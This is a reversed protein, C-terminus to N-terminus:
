NLKGAMKRHSAALDMNEKVAQEYARILNECMSEMDIGQRGHYQKEAQYQECMKRHEGLKSQIEQAARDYYGAVAEHDAHTKANRVADGMDTSYANMQMGFVLLGFVLIFLSKIKTKM